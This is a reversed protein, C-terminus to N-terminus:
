NPLWRGMATEMKEMVTSVPARAMTSRKARRLPRLPNRCPARSHARRRGAQRGAGVVADYATRRGRCPIALSVAVVLLPFMRLKM